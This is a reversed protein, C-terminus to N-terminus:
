TSVPRTATLTGCGKPPAAGNFRSRRRGRRGATRRNRMGEPTRCWQFVGVAQQIGVEDYNRVGEPTRCWRLNQIDV